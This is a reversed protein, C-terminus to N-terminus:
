DKDGVLDRWTLHEVRRNGDVFFLDINLTKLLSPYKLRRLAMQKYSAPYALGYYYGTDPNIRTMLQGMSLVFRVDRGSKPSIATNSPGGKVEVLFYRGNHHRAVIDVGHERMTKISAPHFGLKGLRVLVANKVADETLPM